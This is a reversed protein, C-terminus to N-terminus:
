YHHIWLTNEHYGIYKQVLDPHQTAFMYLANLIVMFDFKGKDCCEKMCKMTQAVEPSDSSPMM